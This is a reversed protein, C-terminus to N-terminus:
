VTYTSLLESKRTKGISTTPMRPVPIFKDPVEIKRLSARLEAELQQRVSDFDADPRAVYFLVIKNGWYEDPVAVAAASAVGAHRLALNEILPLAVFEGGRKVLDHSRGTVYLSGHQLYGLDGTPFFGRADVGTTVGDAAAYGKMMFPTKVLIPGPEVDTGAEVLVGKSLAGVSERALAQDWSQLTISGGVETVGYCGRLPVQFTDHFRKAISDYLTSSTSIISRYGAIHSLLSDDRRYLQSLSLAMTPTLTLQNVGLKRPLEWFRLMTAPDFREGVVIAAGSVLACFFMNFVGAMYHMPFHHYLVTTADFESLTSFAKASEVISRLTHVIGKPAGTTGSSLIILFEADAAPVKLTTTAKPNANWEHANAPSCVYSIGLSSRAANARAEPLSPDLPCAVFGGMACALYLTLHDESHGLVLGVRAGPKNGLESLRQAQRYAIQAVDKYHLATGDKRILCRENAFRSFADDLAANGTSPLTM